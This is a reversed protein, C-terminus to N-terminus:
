DKSNTASKFLKRKSTRKEQTKQPIGVKIFMGFRIKKELHKEAIEESIDIVSQEIDIKLNPTPTSSHM